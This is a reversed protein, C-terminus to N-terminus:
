HAEGEFMVECMRIRDAKKVQMVAQDNGAQLSFLCQRVYTTKEPTSGEYSEPNVPRPEVEVSLSKTQAAEPATENQVPTPTPRAVPLPDVALPTARPKYDDDNGQTAFWITAAFLTAPLLYYIPNVPKPRTQGFTRTWWGQRRTPDIVARLSMVRLVSAATFFGFLWAAM